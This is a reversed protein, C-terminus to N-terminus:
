QVPPSEREHVRQLNKTSFFLPKVLYRRARRLLEKKGRFGPLVAQMYGVPANYSRLASAPIFLQDETATCDQGLREM